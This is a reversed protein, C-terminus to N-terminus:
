PASGSSERVVLEGPLAVSGPEEGAIRRLLLDVLLTAGRAVDQRVTTLSPHVHAAMAIDDFGVVAVQRPVALGSGTLARMSSIAIVDTAAFVADFQVGSEIYRRMAAHAAEPTMHAKIVRPPASGRPARELALKYGECRLRIEPISPDGVFVIRRRGSALLHETATRAASVNDTGVVCYSQKELHGGWVVLPAFTAAAQELAAHETSQGIVIIGDSRRAAILKPLWGAMPPLIKELYMGYGRRTIEEALHGLMASFFPDTLAQDREHALPIVVSLTQTRSTRLSSAVRNVVYGYEAALKLIKERVQREVLPSGALARSVTSVHVGALRAIDQMKPAANKRRTM